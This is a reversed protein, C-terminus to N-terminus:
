QARPIRATAAGIRHAHSRAAIPVDPRPTRRCAAKRRRDDRGEHTERRQQVALVKPCQSSEVIGLQLPRVVPQADAADHQLHPLERPHVALDRGQLGFRPVKTKKRGRSGCRGRGAASGPAGIDDDHMQLGDEIGNQERIIARGASVEALHLFFAARCALAAEQANMGPAACAPDAFEGHQAADIGRNEPQGTCLRVEVERPVHFVAQRVIQFPETVFRVRDVGRIPVKDTDPCAELSVSDVIEDVDPTDFARRGVPAQLAVLKEDVFRAANQRLRATLRSKNEDGGVPIMARMALARMKLGIRAREVDPLGAVARGAVIDIAEVVGEGFHRLKLAIQGCPSLRGHHQEVAIMMRREDLLVRRIKWGVRVHSRIDQGKITERAAIARCASRRM